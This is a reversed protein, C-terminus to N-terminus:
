GCDGAVRRASRSEIRASRADTIEREIWDIKGETTSCRACDAAHIKEHRLSVAVHELPFGRREACMRMTM